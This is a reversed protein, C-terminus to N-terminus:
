RAWERNFRFLGLHHRRLDRSLQLINRHRAHNYAYHGARARDLEAGLFRKLRWYIALRHRRTDQLEDRYFVPANASIERLIRGISAPRTNRSSDRNFPGNM